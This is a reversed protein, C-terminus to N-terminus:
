NSDSRCLGLRRVAPIMDRLSSCLVGISKLKLIPVLVTQFASMNRTSLPSKIEAQFLVLTERAGIGESLLFDDLQIELVLM